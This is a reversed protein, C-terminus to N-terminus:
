FDQRLTLYAVTLSGLEPETLRQRTLFTAVARTKDALMYHLDLRHGQVDTGAFFEDVMLDLQYDQEMHRYSYEVRWDGAQQLRGIHGGIWWGLNRDSAATNYVTDAILQVEPFGEPQWHWRVSGNLLRFDSTYGPARGDVRRNGTSYVGRYGSNFQYAALADVGTYHLYGLGAELNGWPLDWQTRGKAAWLASTIFTDETLIVDEHLLLESKRWRVDSVGTLRPADNQWQFIQQLGNFSVDEDFLLATDFLTNRAKGFHLQVQPMWPPAYDQPTTQWSVRYRDIFFPVRGITSGGAPFWSLNYNDNQTSLVRLGYSWHEDVRGRLGASLRMQLVNGLVDFQENAMACHRVAFSGFFDFPLAERFDQFRQALQLQEFSQIDLQDQLLELALAPDEASGQDASSEEPEDLSTEAANETDAPASVALGQFTFSLALSLAFCRSWRLLPSAGFVKLTHM